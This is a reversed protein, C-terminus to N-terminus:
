VMDMKRAKEFLIPFLELLTSADACAYEIM